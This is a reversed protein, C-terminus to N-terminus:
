VLNCKAAIVAVQIRDQANLKETLKSVRVKVTNPSINFKEAIVNNSNGKAICRMMEIEDDTLESLNIGYNEKENNMATKNRAIEICNSISMDICMVGNQIVKLIAPLLLPNQEKLFCGQAGIKFAQNIVKKNKNSTYVIVRTNRFNEKIYRATNIGDMGSLEIDLIVMDAPKIQMQEIVEEGSCFDGYIEFSGDETLVQKACMRTLKYNDAIYVSIRKNLM